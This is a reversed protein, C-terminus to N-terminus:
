SLGVLAVGAAILLVALWMRPTVRERLVRAAAFSLAVTALGEFPFLHSLDLRQLLGLWLMFWVTMAAIGAILLLARHHRIRPPRRPDDPPAHRMALKLLVQGAVLGVLSAAILLLVGPTM